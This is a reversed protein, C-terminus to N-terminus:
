KKITATTTTKTSDTQTAIHVKQKNKYFNKTKGDLSLGLMSRNTASFSVVQLISAYAWIRFSFIEIALTYRQAQRIEFRSMRTKTLYFQAFM